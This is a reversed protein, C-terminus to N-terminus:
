ARTQNPNDVAPQPATWGSNALETQARRAFEKEVEFTLRDVAELYPVWAAEYIESDETAQPSRRRVLFYDKSSEFKKLHLLFCHETRRVMEGNRKFRNFQTGLNAIVVLDKYGTEEGIERVAAQAPTEGPEIHGKPIRWENPNRRKILLFNNHNLVLGGSATYGTYDEEEGNIKLEYGEESKGMDESSKQFPLHM